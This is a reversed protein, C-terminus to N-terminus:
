QSSAKLISSSSPQPITLRTQPAPLYPPASKRFLTAKRRPLDSGRSLADNPCLTPPTQRKKHDLNRRGQCESAHKHNALSRSGCRKLLLPARPAHAGLIAPGLAGYLVITELISDRM